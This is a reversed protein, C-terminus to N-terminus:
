YNIEMIFKVIADVLSENIPLEPQNYSKINEDFELPADRLVHNMGDVLVLEANKASNYLREANDTSVQVDHTGSVVLVPIDLKGIEITPDEKFLSIMYGQIGPQIISQLFPHIEKVYHGMALSDLLPKAGKALFPSRNELQQYIIQDLTYGPGALSILADSPIMQAAKTGMLSGLSHGLLIVHSFREDARFFVIWAAIDKVFHELRIEEQKINIDKSAGIGKKDFRFSAIDNVALAGALKKLADNKFADGSNGDRDTPGSGSIMIVLPVPHDAEPRVLSGYINGEPRQIYLQERKIDYKAPDQAQTKPPQFLNLLLPLICLSLWNIKKMTRLYKSLDQWTVMM